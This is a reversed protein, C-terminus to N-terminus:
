SVARSFSLAKYLRTLGDKVNEIFQGIKIPSLVFSLENFALEREYSKHM